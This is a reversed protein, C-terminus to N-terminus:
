SSPTLIWEVANLVGAKIDERQSPNLKIFIFYAIASICAVKFAQKILWFLVKSHWVGFYTMM